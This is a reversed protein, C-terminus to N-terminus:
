ALHQFFTEEFSFTTLLLARFSVGKQAEIEATILYSGSPLNEFSYHGSSDTRTFIVSNGVDNAGQPQAAVKAGPIAVGDAGVVLGHVQSYLLRASCFLLMLSFLVAKM